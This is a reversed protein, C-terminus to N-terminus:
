ASFPSQPKSFNGKLIKVKKLKSEHPSFIFYDGCKQPLYPISFSYLLLTTKKFIGNPMVNKYGNAFALPILFLM